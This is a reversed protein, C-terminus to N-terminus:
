TWSFCSKIGWFHLVKFTLLFGDEILNNQGNQVQLPFCLIKLTAIFYIVVKRQLNSSRYEVMHFLFRKRKYFEVLHRSWLFTTACFLTSPIVWWELNLLCLFDTNIFNLCLFLSEIVIKMELGETKIVSLQTLIWLNVQNIIFLMCVCSEYTFTRYWGSKLVHFLRGVRIITGITSASILCCSHLQHKSHESERKFGQLWFWLKPM